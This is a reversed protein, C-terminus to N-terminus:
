KVQLVFSERTTQRTADEATLTYRTDREPAVEFCRSISPYVQEVAPDLKVTRANVVGYCVLAKQGRHIVGPTVYFNLIKLQGGRYVEAIAKEAQARRAAAAQELRRNENWRAVLVWAVYLVALV